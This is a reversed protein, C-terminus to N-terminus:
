TKVDKLVVTVKESTTHTVSSQNRNMLVTMCLEKVFFSKIMFYAEFICYTTM